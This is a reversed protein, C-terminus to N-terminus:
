VAKRMYRRLAEPIKAYNEILYSFDMAAKPKVAVEREVWAVLKLIAIGAPSAVPITMDSSKSIQVNFESELAETFGFPGQPGSRSPPM